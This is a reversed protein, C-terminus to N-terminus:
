VGLCIWGADAGEFGDVSESGVRGNRGGLFGCRNAPRSKSGVQIQQARDPRPPIPYQRKRLRSRTTGKSSLSAHAKTEPPPTPSSPLPPPPHINLGHSHNTTSHIYLSCRTNSKGKSPCSRFFFSYEFRICVTRRLHSVAHCYRLSSVFSRVRLCAAEVRVGM